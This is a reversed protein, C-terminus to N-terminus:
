RWSPLVVASPTSETIDSKEVNRRWGSPPYHPGCWRSKMVRIREGDIYPTAPKHRPGLSAVFSYSFMTETPTFYIEMLRGTADGIFVLLTCSPRHDEFWKHPSGDIQLLEGYCARRERMQHVVVFKRAKKPKWMGEEIMIRRVSERSLRLSHMETLKEHALTPGFDRYREHILDIM